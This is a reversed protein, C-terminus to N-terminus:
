DELKAKRKLDQVDAKEILKVLNKWGSYFGFGGEKLEAIAEDKTWGCATIRYMACMMGTRDAGRQCHVFVPLNNTDAMVKLFSVVDEMEGHWPNSAIRTMKLGMGKAEGTDSHFERLNVITKVGAAKLNKM